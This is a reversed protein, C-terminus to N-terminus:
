RRTAPEQTLELFVHELDQRQPLVETPTLGNHVLHEVVRETSVRRVEIYDGIRELGHGDSALERLLQLARDPNATRVRVADGGTKLLSAVEGEAVVQGQRIIAVRQCIQEIEYLLHSSLMITTGQAALNRLLTRMEHM